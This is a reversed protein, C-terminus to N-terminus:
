VRVVPVFGPHTQRMTTTAQMACDEASGSWPEKQGLSSARLTQYVARFINQASKRAERPYCTLERAVTRNIWALM